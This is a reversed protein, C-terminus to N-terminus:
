LNEFQIKENCKPKISRKLSRSVPIALVKKIGDFSIGHPEPGNFRSFESFRVFHFGIRIRPISFKKSSCLELSGTKWDEM